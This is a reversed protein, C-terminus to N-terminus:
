PVGEFPGRLVAPGSRETAACFCRHIGRRPNERFTGSRGWCGSRHQATKGNSPKGAAGAPTGTVQLRASWAVLAEGTMAPQGSALHQLEVPTGGATFWDSVDKGTPVEVIRVECDAQLLEAARNAGDKRGPADNDPLIVVSRGRLTESYEPRWKGASM